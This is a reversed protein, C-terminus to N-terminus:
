VAPKNVSGVHFTVNHHGGSEAAARAQAIQIEEMDM